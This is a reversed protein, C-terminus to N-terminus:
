LSQRSLNISKVTSMLLYKLPCSNYLDTNQSVAVRREAESQQWPLKWISLLSCTRPDAAPVVRQVWVGLRLTKSLYFCFFCLFYIYIKRLECEGVWRHSSSLWSGSASSSNLSFLLCKKRIGTWNTVGSLMCDLYPIIHVQSQSSSCICHKVNELQFRVQRCVQSRFLDLRERDTGLLFVFLSSYLVHLM